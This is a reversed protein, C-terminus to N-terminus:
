EQLKTCFWTSVSTIHQSRLTKQFATFFSAVYHSNISVTRLTSDSTLIFLVFSKEVFVSICSVVFSNCRSKCFCTICTLRMYCFNSCCLEYSFIPGTEYLLASNKKKTSLINCRWLTDAVFSWPVLFNPRWFTSGSFNLIQASFQLWAFMLWIEASYFYNQRWSSGFFLTELLITVQVLNTWLSLSFNM